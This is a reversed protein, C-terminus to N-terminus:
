QRYDTGDMRAVPVHWLLNRGTKGFVVAILRKSMPFEVDQPQNAIALFVLFNRRTQLDRFRGDIEVDLIEHTFELCVIARMGHRNCDPPSNEFDLFKGVSSGGARFRDVGVETTGTRCM